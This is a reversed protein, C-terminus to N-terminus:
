KRKKAPPPEADGGQGKTNAPFLAPQLEDGLKALRRAAGTKQGGRRFSRQGECGDHRGLVGFLQASLREADEEALHACDALVRQRDSEALPLLRFARGSPPPGLNFKVPLIFKLQEDERSPAVVYAGRVANTYGASGSVKHVARTTAGKVLHKM